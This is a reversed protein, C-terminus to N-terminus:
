GLETPPVDALRARNTPDIAPETAFKTSHQRFAEWLDHTM